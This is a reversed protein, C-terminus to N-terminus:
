VALLDGKFVLVWRKDGANSDPKIINPSNEDQANDADLTYVYFAFNAADVVFAADGNNLVSGDFYDLSETGGGTLSTAPYFFQDTM